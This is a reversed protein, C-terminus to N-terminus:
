VSVVIVKLSQERTSRAAVAAVAWVVALGVTWWAAVVWRVVVALVAAFVELM